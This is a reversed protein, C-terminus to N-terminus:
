LFFFAKLIPWAAEIPRDFLIWGAAVLHFTIAWGCVRAIRPAAHLPLVRRVGRYAILLLAHYVGWALFNWAFGHWIGIAAMVVVTNVITRAGGAKSGGLPIFVYDRLWSTLSMHWRKWFESPNTALIPWRFNEEIRLGMMRATGIAIDSYASFDAYIYIFYLYACGWAVLTPGGADAWGDLAVYATQAVATKKLFGIAVRFAGVSLDSTAPRGSKRAQEAWPGFRKIPGAALTPFFLAYGFFTAAGEDAVRGRGREIAYHILQFTVYSVGLPAIWDAEPAPWPFGPWKVAVLLALPAAVAAAVLARRRKPRREAARTLLLVSASAGAVLLAFAGAYQALVALSFLAIFVQRARANRIAWACAVGAPVLVLLYLASSIM